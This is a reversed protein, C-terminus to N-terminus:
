VMMKESIPQAHTHHTFTQDNGDKKRELHM